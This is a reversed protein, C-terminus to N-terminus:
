QLLVAGPASIHVDKRTCKIQLAHLKSDASQTPALTIAWQTELAEVTLRVAQKLDKDTVFGGTRQSMEKLVKEGHSGGFSSKTVISFVSVGEEIAVEEVRVRNVHSLNDDGDSILLIARRPRDPNGSRSLQHKCTEEVADYVATGGGFRATDLVKKAQSVSLATKSAAVAQNFLVLFGQTRDNTLQQFLELAAERISNATAADSRSIDVVVAFLLPDDKASHVDTLPAPVKDVLVSLESQQLAGPSKDDDFTTLFVRTASRAPASSQPTAAFVEIHGLVACLVVIWRAMKQPCPRMRCERM